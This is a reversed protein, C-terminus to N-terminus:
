NEATDVAKVESQKKLRKAWLSQVVYGLLYMDAAIGVLTGLIPVLRVLELVAIGILASLFVNMKPFLLRSLSAGAFALGACLLLVYALALMGAIPALIWTCCLIIAAAPICAWSIAGTAIMPGTKEKIMAAAGALHDNFLWCLLMGFAAMAVIWYLGSLLKKIIVAGIGAKAAAATADQADESVQEFEYDAIQAGSPVSPEVPSQIKLTGTVVAGDKIEVTEASIMADGNVTGSLIVKSGAVYLGTATGDFSILNGTAYVGNGETIGSITISNGAGFINGNVKTSKLSVSNGAMYVSEGVTSDSISVEQGALMLSGKAKADAVNVSQGVALAGFFPTTPLTVMDGAEFINGASDPEDAMVPICTAIALLAALVLTMLKKNKM